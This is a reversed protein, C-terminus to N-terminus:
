KHVPCTRGFICRRRTRAAMTRQYTRLVTSDGQPLGERERERDRVRVREGEGQRENQRERKRERKEDGERVTRKRENENLFVPM